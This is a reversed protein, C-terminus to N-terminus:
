SSFFPILLPSGMCREGGWSLGLTVREGVRLVRRLRAEAVQRIRTGRGGAEGVDVPSLARSSLGM